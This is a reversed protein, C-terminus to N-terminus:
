GFLNRKTKSQKDKEKIHLYLSVILSGFMLVIAIYTKISNSSDGFLILLVGIIFLSHRLSNM